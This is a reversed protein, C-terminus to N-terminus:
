KRVAVAWVPSHKKQVSAMRHPWIILIPAHAVSNQQHPISVFLSQQICEHLHRPSIELKFLFLRLWDAEEQVPLHWEMCSAM